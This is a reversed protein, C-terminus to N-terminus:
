FNMFRMIEKHRTFAFIQDNKNSNYMDIYMDIM